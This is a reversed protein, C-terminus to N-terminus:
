INASVLETPTATLVVHCWCLLILSGVTFVWTVLASRSLTCITAPARTSEPQPPPLPSLEGATVGEEDDDVDDLPTVEELALEEPALEEPALEEPLLEELPVTAGVSIDGVGEPVSAVVAVAVKPAVVLWLLPV